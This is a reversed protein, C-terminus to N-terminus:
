AGAPLSSPEDPSVVVDVCDGTRRFVVTYQYVGLDQPDGYQVTRPRLGAELLGRWTPRRDLGDLYRPERGFTAAVEYPYEGSFLDAVYESALPDSLDSARLGHDDPALYALSRHYHLAVFDPCRERVTVMREPPIPNDVDVGHPIAAEQPDRVYTEVTANAGAHSAIWSQADDRGQTAYGLDGAVAYAGTSVVLGVVLVRAVAPRRDHLRGAGVAVLVVLLAFAPLLHHTRVYGWQSYVALFTGLAVVAFRSLDGIRSSEHIWALTGLVGGVSAFALPLGLGNLWGRAIWWWSSAVVWSHASGKGVVGREVRGGFRDFAGVLVQPYSLFVAVGGVLLGVALLRPRVLTERWSGEVRRARSLYAVGVVLASVGMTFKFGTAVGGGLCALYFTRRTGSEVYELAFYVSLLFFFLGPVDEGAEHALVLFGWTLTLLLAALRGTARGDVVTGIRYVVYVAGVAFGVNVLRAPLITATWVWGPVAQWDNWLSTPSYTAMDVIAPSQGLLLLVVLVPLLVLGYVYFTGGYSRWFTLGERISRLEFDQLFFGVPRIPDVVRWREDRTAFNPLRHWVWFSALLAALLLFYLLYPDASLDERVQAWAGEGLDRGQGWTVSARSWIGGAVEVVSTSWDSV